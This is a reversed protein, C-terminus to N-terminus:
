KGKPGPKQDPWSREDFQAQSVEDLGRSWTAMLQEDERIEMPPDSDVFAQTEKVPGGSGEVWVDENILDRRSTHWGAAFAEQETMIVGEGRVEAKGERGNTGLLSTDNSQAVARPELHFGWRDV